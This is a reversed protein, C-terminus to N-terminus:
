VPLPGSHKVLRDLDAGEVYEMVLVQASGMPGADFARVVNPHALASILQIERQFRQVVEADALLERRIVKLAVVRDRNLHRAKFVQGTGGEGLRELVLYQGLVLEAGRGLLIQNVQYATLWGRQLLEKSLSRADTFRSDRKLPQLQDARLIRLRVLLETLE